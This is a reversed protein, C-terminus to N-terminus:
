ALCLRDALWRRAIDGQARQFPRLTPLGVPEPESGQVTFYGALGALVRDVAGGDVGRFPELAAEVESPSPGGALGVSPLMCVKDLWSAGVCAHPWDVIVMTGDATVLLNDARVDAHVLSEGSAADEWEAELDALHALHRLTWADLPATSSEGGALRRFGSFATGHRDAFSVLGTVPCPTTAAALEDLARFTAALGVISWPQAPPEGAVDEFVLTVWTGDDFVALLAPAPLDAPLAAAVMAERRHMAPSEPNQHESVSKIFCRRGDALRCRAAVGPSFGGPQNVAEVVASGLVSEVHARVELPVDHWEVRIGQREM